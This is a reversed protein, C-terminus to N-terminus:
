ARSCTRTQGRDGPLPHWGGHATGQEGCGLHRPHHRTGRERRDAGPRGLGAARMAAIADWFTGAGLALEFRGGSLLDLSAAARALVAPPRLPLNVVSAALHITDTSAALYSLLTWTDLFAPQYPHDQFAALDLGAAEVTRTVEVLQRPAASSPTILAGFLLDHQYDPM